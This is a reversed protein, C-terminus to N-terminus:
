VLGNQSYGVFADSMPVSSIEISAYDGPGYSGLGSLSLFSKDISHVFTAMKGSDWETYTLNPIGGINTADFSGDNNNATGWGLLDNIALDGIAGMMNSFTTYTTQNQPLEWLSDIEPSPNYFLNQLFNVEASNYVAGPNNNTVEVALRVRDGLDAPEYLQVIQGRAPQAFALAVLLTAAITPSIRKTNM